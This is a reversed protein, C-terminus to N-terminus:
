RARPRGRVERGLTLALGLAILVILVAALVPTSANLAKDLFLGLAFALVVSTLIIADGAFFYYTAKLGRLIANM